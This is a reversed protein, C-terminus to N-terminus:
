VAIGLPRDGSEFVRVARGSALPGEERVEYARLSPSPGGDTVYLTREGDLAIGYPDITDATMRRLTWSGDPQPDSRLVSCDDLPPFGVPGGSSEETWRDTSWIRGRRDVVLHQPDNRRLGDI